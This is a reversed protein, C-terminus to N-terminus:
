DRIRQVTEIRNKWLEQFISNPHNIYIPENSILLSEMMKGGEMKDITARFHKDDVVFNM